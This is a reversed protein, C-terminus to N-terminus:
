LQHQQFPLPPANSVRAAEVGTLYVTLVEAPFVIATTPFFGLSLVATEAVVHGAILLLADTEPFLSVISVNAEDLAPYLFFM